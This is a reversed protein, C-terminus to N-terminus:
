DTPPPPTPPPEPCSDLQAVGDLIYRVGSLLTLLGAVWILIALGAEPAKALAWLIMTMQAVTALKGTMRPVVKPTSGTYSILITGLPLITDRTVILTTLWIPITPLIPRYDISLVVIGGVLLLKDALPDLIAGLRTTQNMRRALYGDVADSVIALVFVTIALHRYLEVEHNVYYLILAIFVPVLLIRLISIYNPITV